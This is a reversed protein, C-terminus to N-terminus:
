QQAEDKEKRLQRPFPVPPTQVESSPQFFPENTKQPQNETLVEKSGVLKNPDIVPPDEPQEDTNNDHVDQTTTKGGRTTVGKVEYDIVQVNNMVKLLEQVGFKLEILSNNREKFILENTTQFDCIFERMEEHECKGEDIFKYLMEEMTLSREPYIFHYPRLRFETRTWGEQVPFSVKPKLGQDIPRVFRLSQARSLIIGSLEVLVKDIDIGNSIIKGVYCSDKM